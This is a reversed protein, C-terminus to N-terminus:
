STTHHLSLIFELLFLLRFNDSTFYPSDDPLGMLMLFDLSNVEEVRGQMHLLPRLAKLEMLHYLQTLLLIM